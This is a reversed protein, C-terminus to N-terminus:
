KMEKAQKDKIEKEKEKKRKIKNDESFKLFNNFNKTKLSKNKTNFIKKLKDCACIIDSMAKIKEIFKRSNINKKIKPIIVSLKELGKKIKILNEEKRQQQKKEKQQQIKNATMKMKQFRSMEKNHIYEKLNGGKKKVEIMKNMKAEIDDSSSQSMLDIDNDDDIQYNAYKIDLANYKEDELEKPKKQIKYIDQKINTDLLDMKEETENKVNKKM